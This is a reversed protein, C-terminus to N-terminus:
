FEDSVASNFVSKLESLNIKENESLYDLQNIALYPQTVISGVLQDLHDALKSIMEQAYIDTNFVINLHIEEGAEIFDFTLDFKSMLAKRGQYYSIKLESEESVEAANGVQTNQLIVLVDFLPNRSIDRKLGLEEILLYFPFVQHEFAGLTLHKVKDLVSSFSDVPEFQSRLALTNLYFGVQDELDLHERGLIPTGIIIDNQGTYRHLLVNVTALLGMFLTGEHLQLLNKLEKSRGAPIIKSVSGGNYTNVAPRPKSGPLDLVPLDGEFEKLWYTRHAILAEGSLQAHQWAAYDRYQIRLPALPNVMGKTHADYLLLLEKIVIHMSWGDGIIHHMMFSFVWKEHDMKYLEASLLPGAALDFPKVFAVRTMNEMAAERDEVGPLDHYSIKFGSEQPKLIVQKVTGEEDERFVTRLSEHREILASFAYDLSDRNLKGEFVYMGPMNYAINREEIQSAVWLRFQSPSLPYDPQDKLHEIKLVQADASSTQNVLGDIKEAISGINANFLFDRLPLNINFEHKIRKLLMMGKLSDGGLEFFYDKTGIGAIGFFDEFITKLKLETGTVPEAYSTSLDPREFKNLVPEDPQQVASVEVKITNAHKIRTILDGTAQFIVPARNEESLSWEFLEVVEEGKMASRNLENEKALDQQNFLLGGLVICRWNTLEAANAEMFHNLYANASVYSAYSLGGLLVSLSSCLWVFDPSRHKFSKHLSEVGKVKAGFMSLAREQTIDSILEFYEDDTIGAAHIVGNIIGQNSEIGTIIIELHAADAIDACVYTIDPSINKLQNWRELRDGAAASLDKRGTLVVKAEYNELLHKALTYGVNGLGGTILYVGKQKLATKDLVIEGTYPQFDELWRQGYRLATIRVESDADKSLETLLGPLFDSAERDIDINFCPIAYEQPIVRVLGLVLAQIYAAKEMGLVKHLGNTIVSIKKVAQEQQKPLGQLIKVLGLYALHLDKDALLAGQQQEAAMAWSYIIDTFVINEKQLEEFLRTYHNAATPDIVYSNRSIQEYSAGHFIETVENGANILATKVPEAFATDCSFFLYSEKVEEKPVAFSLKRKWSPYYIWDKLEQKNNEGGIGTNTAFGNEFPNVEAPYSIPEFSYTPLSIRRRKESGYWAKWDPEVGRSWLQGIRETFYKLDEEEEKPHKILNLATFSTVATKRQKLLSTLANGAGLELFILNDSTSLLTTIGSSFQVTERMHRVWYDVSLCEENTIFNGTLGSIFPLQPIDRKTNKIEDRYEDLIEEMMYSHGAHTAHLRASSIDKAELRAALENIAPISGSFVIQELGNVAALSIEKDLFTRGTEENVPVSLMAGNALSNMLEGRKVVLKLADEYSFVGSICAAVYEGISHGIMFRPQIGYSLVLQALAYEFLFIAPQTHLMNNIRYDGTTEPYFISKYNEGTLQQLLEFGKDMEAKFLSEHLYLGKGMTVYQSGAGSFLFVVENNSEKSKILQERTKTTDLLAVLEAHEKFVISKRFSFHKRGLQLTYCLDDLNVSEETLLFNRLKETYRNVADATKGSITLIKDARGTDDEEVDPAEELILHANTGGIGLSSVGARLPFGNAPIWDQLSTNVYFPGGAFDIEPNPKEFYLSAPIQRNKLSLATKILGSVGAAADLHGMNSKVSGIACYKDEGGVNFAENLARIEIPDGLKTATGHAEIYTISRPDIGAMKQASRICDAQGKVSPATYGVKLNGDNNLAASRIVAYIHDRDRIAESLRKLLVVGIGEGSATGNAAADFTRCHGDDSSVMGEQYFYGKNQLTKISVGGALAMSCDRTLLSRCALQVATLSTSCATDIFVSPGRLNLKYSTLTTMFRHSSIMSLYFPDVGSEAAKSYTYLKWNDNVSAGAFVGIKQKDTMAAYGADELTEWCHEHFLRIQPDMFAAESPSYGFFGADFHDKNNIVGVSKVYSSDRLTKESVGGKKLEEDTFTKILEKGDKLHQWFQRYNNSDPFRGSIGIIAIELGDYKKTSTMM